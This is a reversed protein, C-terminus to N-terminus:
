DAGTLSSAMVVTPLRGHGRCRNFRNLREVVQEVPNARLEAPGASLREVRRAALAGPATVKGTFRPLLGSLPQHALRVQNVLSFRPPHALLGQRHEGGGLAKEAFSVGLLV